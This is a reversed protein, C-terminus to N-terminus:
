IIGEAKVRRLRYVNKFGKDPYAFARIRAFSSNMVKRFEAYCEETSWCYEIGDREFIVHPNAWAMTPECFFSVTIPGEYEIRIGKSAGTKTGMQELIM